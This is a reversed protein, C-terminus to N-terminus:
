EEWSLEVDSNLKKVNELIAIEFYKYLNRIQNGFEDKYKNGIIRKVVYNTATIITTYDNSELLDNFLDSYKLIDLDDGSIFNKKIIEAVIPNLIKLLKQKDIKDKNDTNIKNNNIQINNDMHPIDVGGKQTYPKEFILYEYEFLGKINQLKNIKLYSLEELEKLISRIAKRSEKSIACLGNISYDWDEPLSLMFSLLGKAKYTLNKDRLHYNSMTTYNNSKEVRFVAL